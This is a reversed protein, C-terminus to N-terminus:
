TEFDRAHDNTPLLHIRSENLTLTGPGEPIRHPRFRPHHWPPKRPKSNRIATIALLRPHTPRRTTSSIPYFTCIYTSYHVFYLFRRDTQRIVGQQQLLVTSPIGGRDTLAVSATHPQKATGGLDLNRHRCWLRTTRKLCVCAGGARVARM